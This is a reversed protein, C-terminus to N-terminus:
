IIDERKIYGPHEAPSIIEPVHLVKAWKDVIQNELHIDAGIECYSELICNKVVAGPAIVVGRGVVSNSVEGHIICGNSILSSTVNSDDFYLTPSTDATVTYIPWDPTFLEHEPKILDLNADYYSKLSTPAAFYGRHPIGRVDLDKCELNIIQSLTYVSSIKAANRVLRIFLERKMVYTDMSVSRDKATGRNREITEVGKQRNLNLIDCSLFNSKADSTHHYLISIDAGSEIHQDLMENYDQKYVYYSPAIVVYEHTLREVLNLNEQFAAIDTNYIDSASNNDAFLIQIKGSKSNINYMRGNQIHETLSRPNERVYVQIQNIGSNSMNSLPFDVVRYRGIFSFAGIPRYTQLGKVHIHNASSNLIGFARNNPM